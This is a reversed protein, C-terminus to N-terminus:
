PARRRASGIIDNGPKGAKGFRLKAERLCSRAIWYGIANATM